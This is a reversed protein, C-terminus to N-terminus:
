ISDEPKTSLLLQMLREKIEHPLEDSLQLTFEDSADMHLTYYANLDKEKFFADFETKLNVVERQFNEKWKDLKLGDM